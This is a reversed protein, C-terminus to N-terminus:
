KIAGNMIFYLGNVHKDDLERILNINNLIFYLKVLSQCTMTKKRNSLIYTDDVKDVFLEHDELQIEIRNRNITKVNISKKLASIETFSKLVMVLTEHQQKSYHSKSLVNKDKIKKIGHIKHFYKKLSISQEKDAHKILENWELSEPITKCKYVSKLLFLARKGWIDNDLKVIPKPNKDECFFRQLRECGNIIEYDLTKYM